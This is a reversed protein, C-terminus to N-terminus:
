TAHVVVVTTNDTAGRLNAFNVLRRAAMEASTAESELMQKLEDATLHNTLGDSCILLWDGAALKGEYIAPEVEARGGIAQQLESRRPHTEAEAETLTGLELLRNVLTQDRTVQHIRGAHFHYTRSDGVHGVVFNCGDIAVVEATCGMGRKGTGSRAAQFVVRNAEVLAAFVADRVANPLAQEASGAEGHFEALTPNATLHQRINRIAMAAAIEGAEYGGMGDALVVLASERLEDQVSEMRHIVTMADENGTRVMGTTTWAAIDLRVRDLWKGCLALTQKLETFGTPDTAAAEDSPFRNTVERCFTKAILRGLLPHMDPFMPLLPKPEGNANFNMETLERGLFLSYLMAGISYLSARADAQESTRRLEPAAYLSGRLPPDAPLPLPLLDGLVRWRVGSADDVVFDEPRVAEIIAGCQYLEELAEVVQRLCSFRERYTVSVDDWVDWLDRGTPAEEILYEQGDEVFSEVIRPWAAHNLQNRLKVEWALGPWVAEAAVPAALPAETWPEDFTPLIEGEAHPEAEVAEVAEAIAMSEAAPMAAARVIFVSIPPTAALDRGHFRTGCARDDVRRELEYRGKIIPAPTDPVAPAKNPEEKPFIWGCDFCYSQNEARPAQCQPCKMQVTSQVAAVPEPPKDDAQSAVDDNRDDRDPPKKPFVSDEAPPPVSEPAPLNPTM